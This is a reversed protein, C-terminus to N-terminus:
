EAKNKTTEQVLIRHQESDGPVCFHELVGLQITIPLLKPKFNPLVKPIEGMVDLVSPFVGLSRGDLFAVYAVDDRNSM